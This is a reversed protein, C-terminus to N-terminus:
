GTGGVSIGKVHEKRKQYIAKDRKESELGRMQLKAAQKAGEMEQKTTEDKPKGKGQV